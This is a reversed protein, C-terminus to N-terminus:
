CYIGFRAKLELFDQYERYSIGKALIETKKFSTKFNEKFHTIIYIYNNFIKEM